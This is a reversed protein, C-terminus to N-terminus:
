ISVVVNETVSVSENVNPGTSGAVPPPGVAVNVRDPADGLELEVQESDQEFTVHIVVIKSYAKIDESKVTVVDGIDYHVGYMQAPQQLPTFEVFQQAKLEELVEDGLQNLQYEYEQSTGPRSVECRNWPSAIVADENSRTITTQTSGEGEGLVVVVNGEAMRDYVYSFDSAFGFDTSFTVPLNGAPNRGRTDLDISRRDEGMQNIHTKFVFEAPGSGIVEFDVASQQGIDALVDLLNEFARSGEWNPGGNNTPEVSFNPLYGQYLRGVVTDDATVGCNEEVYEKMVTEVHADKDARITGAKYAIITRALLDNYSVGSFTILREGTEAITKNVKRFFGEFVKYYDVGQGPVSRWIEVQADLIFQSFRVDNNNYFTLSFYGVDNVRTEYELRLFNDFVATAVGNHNKLRVNYKVAIGTHRPSIPPNYVDGAVHEALAVNESAVVPIPVHSWESVYETISTSDSVSIDIPYVSARVVESVSVEDSAVINPVGDLEINESLSVGDSSEPNTIDFVDASETVSVSESVSDIYRLEIYYLDNGESISVSDSVSPTLPPPVARVYESTDVSDSASPNPIDEVNRSESVDVSDSTSIYIPAKRLTLSDYYINGNNNYIYGLVIDTDVTYVNAVVGGREEVTVGDQLEVASTWSGSDVSKSYYLDNDTAGGLFYVTKANADVALYHQFSAGYSGSVNHLQLGSLVLYKEGPTGDDDVEWSWGQGSCLVSSGTIREVGDDDYYVPKIGCFSYWCPENYSTINTSSLTDDSDLSKYHTQAYGPGTQYLYAFYVKDDEGLCCGHIFYHVNTGSKVLNHVSWSTTYKAYYVRSYGSGGTHNYFIIIDGNSRVVISCGSDYDKLTTPTVYTSGSWVDPSSHESTNFTYYRITGIADQTAIHIVDGDLFSDVCWVSPTVNPAGASDQETWSAGGNSSKMMALKSSDTSLLSVFYINGDGDMAPAALQRLNPFQIGTIQTAM